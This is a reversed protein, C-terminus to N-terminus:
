RSMWPAAAIADALYALTKDISRLVLQTESQHEATAGATEEQVRAMARISLSTDQALELFAAVVGSADQEETHDAEPADDRGEILINEYRREANALGKLTRLTRAAQHWQTLDDPTYVAAYTATAGGRSKKLDADLLLDVTGGEERLWRYGVGRARGTSRFLPLTENVARSRSEETLFDISKRGPAVDADYGLTESWRRNVRILDGNEGISHMMVPAHEFIVRASEELVTIAREAGEREVVNEEEM